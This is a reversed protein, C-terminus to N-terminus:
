NSVAKKKASDRSNRWLKVGGYVLGCFILIAVVVDLSIATSPPPPPLPQGIAKGVILALIFLITTKKM